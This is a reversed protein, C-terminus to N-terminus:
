VVVHIVALLLKESQTMQSFFCWMSFMLQHVFVFSCICGCAQTRAVVVAYSPLLHFTLRAGRTHSLRPSSAAPSHDHRHRPRPSTLSVNFSVHSSPIDDEQWPFSVLEYVDVAAEFNTNVFKGIHWSTLWALTVSSNVLVKEHNQQLFTLHYPEATPQINWLSCGRHPAPLYDPWPRRTKDINGVKNQRHFSSCLPM